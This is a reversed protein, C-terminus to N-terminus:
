DGAKKAGVKKKPDKSTSETKKGENKEAKAARKAAKGKESYDTVYWGEGKFQIAPASVLREVKGKCKPCTRVKRDTVKQLREFRHGCDRCEYEYIPM